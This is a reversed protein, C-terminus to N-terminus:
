WVRFILDTFGNTSCNIVQRCNTAVNPFTNKGRTKIERRESLGCLWTTPTQFPGRYHGPPLVGSCHGCAVAGHLAWGREWARRSLAARAGLRRARRWGGNYIDSHSPPGRPRPSGANPLHWSASLIDQSSSRIEPSSTYQTCLHGRTKKRVLKPSCSYIHAPIRAALKM